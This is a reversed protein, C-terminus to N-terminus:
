LRKHKIECPQLLKGNANQLQNYSWCRTNQMMQLYVLYIVNRSRCNIKQRIKFQKRNSISKFTKGQSKNLMACYVCNNGCPFCSNEDGEAVTELSENNDNISNHSANENEEPSYPVFVSPALIEKLNKAGRRESVQLHKIGKPFVKKLEDDDEIVSRFKCFAALVDSFTPEYDVVM